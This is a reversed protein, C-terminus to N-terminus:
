GGPPHHSDRKPELPWGMFAACDGLDGLLQDVSDYFTEAGASFRQLIKSLKDPLYPFVKQLNMIRHPHIVSADEAALNGPPKEREKAIQQFTVFGKAVTYNLVNGICWIDFDSFDQELDFDIWRYIGTEREVLLHDTRIDGHCVGAAHLNSIGAFSRMVQALADPFVTHFYREHPLDIEWLYSLLDPGQIFDIVRVLNGCSDKSTRGQMFRRDGQVLQLVRGEKEESRRCKVKLNGIRFTFAEHFVLKLICTHGTKLSVTRKVWFKPQGDLGFRGEQENRRVLFLQGQLDIIHDRDIGMYNTTDGIVKPKGCPPRGTYREVQEAIWAETLGSRQNV